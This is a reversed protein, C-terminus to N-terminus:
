RTRATALRTRRAGAGEALDSIQDRTGGGSCQMMTNHGSIWVDIAQQLMSDVEPANPTVTSPPLLRVGTTRLELEAGAATDRVGKRAAQQGTPPASTCGQIRSAVLLPRVRHPPPPSTSPTDGTAEGVGSGGVSEHQKHVRNHHAVTRSSDAPSAPRLHTCPANAVSRTRVTTRRTGPGRRCRQAPSSNPPACFSGPFLLLTFVNKRLHVRASCRIPHPYTVPVKANKHTHTRRSAEPLSGNGGNGPAGTYGTYRRWFYQQNATLEFDPVVDPTLLELRTSIEHLAGGEQWRWRWRSSSPPPPPIDDGRRM